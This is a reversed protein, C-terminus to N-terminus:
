EIVMAPHTQAQTNRALEMELRKIAEIMQTFLEIMRPDYNPNPITQLEGVPGWTTMPRFVKTPGFMQQAQKLMLQAQATYDGTGWGSLLELQGQLFKRQLSSISSDTMFREINQRVLGTVASKEDLMLLRNNIADFENQARVMAGTTQRAFVEVTGAFVDQQQAQLLEQTKRGVLGQGFLPMLPAMAAGYFELAAQPNAKIWDFRQAPTMEALAQSVAGTPKIKQVLLSGLATLAGPGAETEIGAMMTGLAAEPKIGLAILERVPKMSESILNVRKGAGSRMAFALDAVDELRKSPMAEQLEGLTRLFEEPQEFGSIRGALLYAQRTQAFTASPRASKYTDIMQTIRTESLYRNAAADAQVQRRLADLNEIGAMGFSQGIVRSFDSSFTLQARAMKEQDRLIEAIEEKFLELGKKALSIAGNATLFGAAIKGVDATIQALGSGMGEFSEKTKRSERNAEKLKAISEEQKAIVKAMDALAKDPNSTIVYNIDSKAM